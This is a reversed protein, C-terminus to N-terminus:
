AQDRPGPNLGGSEEGPGDQGAIEHQYTGPQHPEWRVIDIEVWAGDTGDGEANELVVWQSPSKVPIGLADAIERATTRWTTRTSKAIPVGYQM